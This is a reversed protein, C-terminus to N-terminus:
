VYHKLSKGICKLLKDIEGLVYFELQKDIITINSNVNEKMRRMIIDDSMKKWHKKWLSLLDTVQCNVMIHVFLERIQTPFGCKSCEEIVEHWENDDDLFGYQLCAEKFSKYLVGDVTKLQDFSTPGRVKTLLFRLYWIEGSNHHTYFLRGIQNGKERVTWVNDSDNWVYYRPIEDYTYNRANRDQQNLYFFAELQSRRWKEMEVVKHLEENERFTCNKEWAFPIFSSSCFYLNYPVVYQNDLEAKGKKVTIGTKRRKYIPFGSQDFLNQAQYKKPFHKSCKMNVYMNGVCEGFYAKKKIDEVIYQQFLRGGLRATNGENHRVQLRYSYYEKRTVRKRKKGKNNKTAEYPIDDHYGDEGEKTLSSKHGSMIDEEDGDSGDLLEGDYFMEADEEVFETQGSAVDINYDVDAGLQCNTDRDRGFLNISSEALTSSDMRRCKKKKVKSTSGIHGRRVYSRKSKSEGGFLNPIGDIPSNRESINENTASINEDMTDVCGKENLNLRSSNAINSLSIGITVCSLDPSKFFADVAYPPNLILVSCGKENLNLRSNVINSLPIRTTVCSLDPSKFVSDGAIGNVQNSINSFPQRTTLVSFPPRISTCGVGVAIDSISSNVDNKNNNSMLPAYRENTYSHSIQPAEYRNEKNANQSQTIRKVISGSDSLLSTFSDLKLHNYRGEKM